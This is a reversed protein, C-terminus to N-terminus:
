PHHSLIRPESARRAYPRMGPTKRSIVLSWIRIVFGSYRILSSARIVFAARDAEDNIRIEPKTM